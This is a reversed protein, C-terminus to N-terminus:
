GQVRIVATCIGDTVAANYNIPAATHCNTGGAQVSGAIPSGDDLKNDLQLAQSANLIGTAAGPAAITGNLVLYHGPRGATNALGAVVAGDDYTLWYGGGISSEPLASGFSLVAATSTVGSILDAAALQMFAVTGESGIAPAANSAPTEIRGSGDGTAAPACTSGAACNALRTGANQMDGPLSRYKDRFTSIAADLGKIQAVTSSVKANAIMEQGKLIGAILLGIIIMVIALEVLTFGKESKRLKTFTSNM